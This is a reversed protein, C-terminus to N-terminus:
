SRKLHNIVEDKSPVTINLDDLTKNGVLEVDNISPKNSLDAYDGSGIEKFKDLVWQKLTEITEVETPEYLYDSPKPRDMVGFWTKYVTDGNKIAYVYIREGTQLLLNPIDAYLIGDEEFTKLTLAVADSQRAMHVYQITPDDIIVRRNLDWQFLRNGDLKIAEDPREWQNCCNM